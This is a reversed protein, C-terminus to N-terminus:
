MLHILVSTPLVMISSKVEPSVAEATAEPLAAPSPTQEYIEQLAANTQKVSHSRAFYAILKGAGFAILAICVAAPLLRRVGRRRRKRNYETHKM